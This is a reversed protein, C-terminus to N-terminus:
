RNRGFIELGKMYLEKEMQKWESNSSLEVQGKSDFSQKLELVEMIGEPEKAVNNVPEDASARGSNKTIIQLENESHSSVDEHISNVNFNLDKVKVHESVGTEVDLAALRKLKKSSGQAEDSIKELDQPPADSHKMVKRKGISEHYIVSEDENLADAAVEFNYITDLKVGITTQPVCSEDSTIDKSGDGGPEGASSSALRLVNDTNPDQLNKVSTLQLM